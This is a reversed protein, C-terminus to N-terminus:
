RVSRFRARIESAFLGPEEWAVADTQAIQRAAREYAERYEPDRLRVAHRRERFGVNLTPSDSM